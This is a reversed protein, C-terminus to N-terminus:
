IEFPEPFTSAGPRCDWPGRFIAHLSVREMGSFNDFTLHSTRPMASTIAQDQVPTLRTVM